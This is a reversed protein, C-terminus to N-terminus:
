FNYSLLQQRQSSLRCVTLCELRRPYPHFLTPGMECGKRQGTIIPHLLGWAITRYSYPTSGLPTTLKNMHTHLPSNHSRLLQRVSNLHGQWSNFLARPYMAVPFSALFIVLNVFSRPSQLYPLSELLGKFKKGPQNHRKLPSKM